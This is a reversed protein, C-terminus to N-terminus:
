PYLMPARLWNRNKRRGRQESEAVEKIKQTAKGQNRSRVSITIFNQRLKGKFNRKPLSSGTLTGSMADYTLLSHTAPIRGV